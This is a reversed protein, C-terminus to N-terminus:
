LDLPDDLEELARDQRQRRPVRASPPQERKVRDVMAALYSTPSPCEIGTGALLERTNRADYAVDAALLDLFSRPVQGLRELGPANFLLTALNRGLGPPAPTRGVAENLLEFIRGLSMPREDIIHFTRGVSDPHDAVALGAEVVYDLPVLHCAQDGSGPVPIRLETPSNVILQLLAYIPEASDMEGTRSDGAIISPRLVTVPVQKALERMLLEARFRADDDRSRPGSEYSGESETVRGNQPKFLRASSWHVVRRVKSGRATALELVEGTSNIFHRRESDRAVGLRRM